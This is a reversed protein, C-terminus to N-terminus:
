EMSVGPNLNIKMIHTGILTGKPLVQGFTIVALLFLTVVFVLRKM